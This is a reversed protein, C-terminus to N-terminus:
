FMNSRCCPCSINKHDEVWRKIGGQSNRCQWHFTHNCCTNLVIDADEFEEQCLICENNNQLLPRTRSKQSELNRWTSLVWSDECLLYDDMMWGKSILKNASEVLKTVALTDELISSTKHLLCFQNKCIREKIYGIKDCIYTTGPIDYKYVYTSTSNEALLNVDFDCRQLHFRSKPVYLIEMTIPSFSFQLPKLPTIKLSTVIINNNLVDESKTLIVRYKLSLLNLFVSIFTPDLRTQLTVNHQLLGLVKWDRVFSGYIDGNFTKVYSILENCVIMTNQLEVVCTQMKIAEISNIYASSSKPTISM